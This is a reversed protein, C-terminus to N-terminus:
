WSGLVGNFRPSGNPGKFSLDQAILTGSTPPSNFGAIVQGNFSYTGNDGQMQQTGNDPDFMRQDLLAGGGYVRVTLEGRTESPTWEVKFQGAFTRSGGVTVAVAGAELDQASM